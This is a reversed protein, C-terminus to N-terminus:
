EIINYLLSNRYQKSDIGKLKVKKQYEMVSVKSEVFVVKMAFKTM